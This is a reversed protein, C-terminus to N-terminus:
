LRTSPTSLNEILKKCLQYDKCALTLASPMYQAAEVAFHPGSWIAVPNPMHQQIADSILFPPQDLIGKSCSVIPISPMIVSKLKPLVSAYAKTPLVLFIVGAQTLVQHDDTITLDNLPIGPLYTKNEGDAALARAHEPSKTVLTIPMKHHHFNLALATGYAGAGYIIIPKHNHM